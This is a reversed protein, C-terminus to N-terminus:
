IVFGSVVVKTIAEKSNTTKGLIVLENSADEQTSDYEIYDILYDMGSEDCIINSLKEVASGEENNSNVYYNHSQLIVDTHEHDEPIMYLKTDEPIMQWILLIAM